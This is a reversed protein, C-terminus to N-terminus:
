LIAGAVFFHHWTMRLPACTIICFSLKAFRFLLQQFICSSEPFWHGSGRVDRILMDQTNCKSRLFCEQLDRGIDWAQRHKQFHYLLIVNEWRQCPASERAGAVCFWMQVNFLPGLLHHKSRTAKSIHMAGCRPASKWCTFFHESAPTSQGNQSRCTSWTVVAHVKEIAWNRFHEVVSSHMKIEVHAQTAAAHLSEDRM